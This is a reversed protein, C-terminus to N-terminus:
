ILQSDVDFRLSCELDHLRSEVGHCRVVASFLTGPRLGITTVQAVVGGRTEEGKARGGRLDNQVDQGGVGEGRGDGLGGHVAGKVEARLRLCEPRTHDQGARLATSLSCNIINCSNLMEQPLGLILYSYALHCNLFTHKALYCGPLALCVNGAFM